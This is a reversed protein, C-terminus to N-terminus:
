RAHNFQVFFLARPYCSCVCAESCVRVIGSGHIAFFTLHTFFILRLKNRAGSRTGRRVRSCGGKKDSECRSPGPGGPLVAQEVPPVDSTSPM